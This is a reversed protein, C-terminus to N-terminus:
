NNFLKDYVDEAIYISDNYYQRIKTSNGYLYPVSPSSIAMEYLEILSKVLTLYEIITLNVNPLLRNDYTLWDIYRVEVKNYIKPIIIYEKNIPFEIITKVINIYEIINPLYTDINNIILDSKYIDKNNINSIIHDIKEITTIPPKYTINKYFNKIKSFM